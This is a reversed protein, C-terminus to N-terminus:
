SRPILSRLIALPDSACFTALDVGGPGILVPIAEPHRKIFSTLGGTRGTASKVEIAWIRGLGEVVYDVEDDRERWTSVQWGFRSAADLLVGGVANEVLRGYWTRDQLFSDFTHHDLASCLSNNWFVLKPSSARHRALGSAYKPLGSLLYADHLIGLYNALTTTNGADQLHGMMKTYSVAQAPYAAAFAFLSRLLAPKRIDHVTFVDKSLVPELLSDRVYARWTEEQARFAAAGPYGGFYVWEDFTWGFAERVEAFNWHGCRHLLFRGALSEEAGRHLTQSSSGLILPLVRPAAAQQDWLSKVTEAWGSIKQIEDLILLCPANSSGRADALRWHFRIWEGEFPATGDASVYSSEHTWREAVQQAATTKGVQRPGVMLQILPKPGALGQLTRGVVERLIM